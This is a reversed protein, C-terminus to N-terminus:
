PLGMPETDISVGSNVVSTDARAPDAQDPQAGLDSPCHGADTADDDFTLHHPRRLV